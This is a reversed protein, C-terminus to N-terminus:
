VPSESTELRRVEESGQRLEKLESPALRYIIHSPRQIPVSTTAPGGAEGEPEPPDGASVHTGLQSATMQCQRRKWWCRAVLVTVLSLTIFAAALFGSHRITTSRWNDQQLQQNLRRLEEIAVEERSPRFRTVLGREKAEMFLKPLELQPLTDDTNLVLPTPTQIAVVRQQIELSSRRETNPLLSYDTTRLLCSKSSEIEGGNNITLETVVPNEGQQCQSVLTVPEPLSYLWKKRSDDWAWTPPPPHIVATRMCLRQSNVADAFFLTSICTQYHSRFLPFRVPCAMPNRGACEALDEHHPIAYTSKDVNVLIFQEELHYLVYAGTTPDRIPLSRVQFLEFNRGVSALPLDLIVKISDSDTVAKIKIYQYYKYVDAVSIGSIFDTGLPLSDRIRSMIKSLDLPGILNVSLRGSVLMEVSNVLSRVDIVAKLTALEIQQLKATINEVLNLTKELKAVSSEVKTVRLKIEGVTDRFEYTLSLLQENTEKTRKSLSKSITLHEQQIHIVEAVKDAFRALNEETVKLEEDEATGFLVRMVKGGLNILGRAHRSHPLLNLLTDAAGILEEVMNMIRTITERYPRLEPFNVTAKMMLDSSEVTTMKLERLGESIETVNINILVRWKEGSLTVEGQKMFWVGERRTDEALANLWM